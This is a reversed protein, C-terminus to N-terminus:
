FVHIFYVHCIYVCLCNMVFWVFSELASSGTSHGAPPLGFFVQSPQFIICFASDEQLSPIHLLCPVHKPWITVPKRLRPLLADGVIVICRCTSCFMLFPSCLLIITRYFIYWWPTPANVPYADSDVHKASRERGRWVCCRGLVCRPCVVPPVVPVKGHAASVPACM